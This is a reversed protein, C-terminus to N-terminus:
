GQLRLFPEDSKKKFIIRKLDSPLQRRYFLALEFAIKVDNKDWFSKEALQHGIKTHRKSFGKRNKKSARDKDNEALLSIAKRLAVFQERTIKPNKKRKKRGPM